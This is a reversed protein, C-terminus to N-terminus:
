KAGGMALMAGRIRDMIEQAESCVAARVEPKTRLVKADLRTFRNTIEGCIDFIAQNNTFNLLPLTEAVEILDTLTSERFKVDGQMRDAFHGLTDALRKWVDGSAKALRDLQQAEAAKWVLDTTADDMTVRFDGAETVPDMDMRIYFRSWLTEPMPYDDEKFMSGMRFQARERAEAYSKTIFNEAAMHFLSVSLEHAEIFKEFAMRPMLRDGNDKWPLTNDYFHRRVVDAAKTIPALTEKAVLHKNVRAADATAGAAETVEKSKEKDLKYGAWLGIQLNLVLAENAIGM